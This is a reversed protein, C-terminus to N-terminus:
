KGRKKKKNAPKKAPPNIINHIVEQQPKTLEVPEHIARIVQALVFADRVNDSPHEFGWRKFIPLILDDKSGKGVGTAFKKLQTPAVEIYKQKRVHLGIRIAWGIAYQQGVFSGTSGHSFGEIAVKDTPQILRLTRVVVDNIRGADLAGDAQIEIRKLVNGDPDLIAVGTKTSHDVGVYRNM